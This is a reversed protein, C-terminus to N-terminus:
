LKCHHPDVQIHMAHFGENLDMCGGMRCDQTADHADSVGKGAAARGWTDAATSASASVCTSCSVPISCHHTRWVASTSFVMVLTSRSSSYVRRGCSGGLHSRSTRQM